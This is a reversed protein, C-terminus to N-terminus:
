VDLLLKPIVHFCHIRGETTLRVRNNRVPEIWGESELQALQEIKESYLDVGYDSELRETNIGDTTQINLLIYENALKDLDFLSKADVPLERQKLLAVYREINDVNSWRHAQSQSGGRWWFSHANSGIGLMNAQHLHLMTHHSQREETAFEMLVYQEYGAEQLYNMAFSFREQNLEDLEPFFFCCTLQRPLSM